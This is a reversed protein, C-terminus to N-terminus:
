KKVLWNEPNVAVGKNWIAFGLTGKNNESNNGVTGIQFNNDVYQGESVYILDDMNSYITTYDDGHNILISNGIGPIFTINSVIGDMVTMVPSGKACEIEIGVNETTTQLEKNIEKGFKKIIKGRVPWKLKGKM